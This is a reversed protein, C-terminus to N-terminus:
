ELSGMWDLIQRRKEAYRFSGIHSAETTMLEVSPGGARVLEEAHYYGVLQDNVGHVILVPLEIFGISDVPDTEDSLLWQVPFQFLWTLWHGKAADRAATSFRSFGSDAIVHTLHREAMPTQSVWNLALSAGLSQGLIVFPARPMSQKANTYEVLWGFGADIDRYVEPINPTGTSWGYGRYDLAFVTFGANLLWETARVHYSINQANGHLFYVTGQHKNAANLKPEILWAHLQEGDETDVTVDQYAFGLDAPTRILTRDPYFFLATCGSLSTAFTLLLLLKFVPLWREHQIM